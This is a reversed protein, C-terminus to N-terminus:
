SAYRSAYTSEDFSYRAFVKTFDETLLSGVVNYNETEDDLLQGQNDIMIYSRTLDNEPVVDRSVKTHRAVFNDFEGQNSLLPSNNFNNHIFLKMRLFKWRAINLQKGIITLDEKENLKTIVTNLKIRINPNVSLALAILQTLKDFTLVEQSKNCAGLAILTQPNISDVSIGLTDVRKFLEPPMLNPNLMLSGNTILSLRFGQNYAYSVIAPFDKHLVPEGGAFNIADVIGSNKLNDIIHKWQDLSLDNNNDFHAFCYKCAYNCKQTIHLNVKYAM